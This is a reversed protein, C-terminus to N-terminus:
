RIAPPTSRRPEYADHISHVMKKRARAVVSENAKGPENQKFFTPRAIGGDDAITYSILEHDVSPTLGNRSSAVVLRPGALM